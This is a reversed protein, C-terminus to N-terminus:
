DTSVDQLHKGVTHLANSWGPQISAISYLYHNGRMINITSHDPTIRMVIECVDMAFDLPQNTRPDCLTLVRISSKKSM